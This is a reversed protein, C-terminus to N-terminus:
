SLPLVTAVYSAVSNSDLLDFITCKKKNETPPLPFNFFFLISVMCQLHVKFFYAAFIGLFIFYFNNADELDSVSFLM